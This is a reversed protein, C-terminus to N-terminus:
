RRRIANRFVGLEQSSFPRLALLPALYLTLLLVGVAVYLTFAGGSSAWGQAAPWLLWGATGTAIGAVTPKWLLSMLPVMGLEKGVWFLFPGLLVLESAVTAIAAGNIGIRPVLLLNATVNFLVTAAFAATLLRQKDLAILVYQTLGNVFSMPLFFILIQLVMAGEPLYREGAVIFILLPAFWVTLVVIPVSLILLLKLAFSYEFALRPRDTQAHRSMRPFLALTVAPTILLVFNLFSYAANYRELELGTPDNAKIVFVDARFFLGVLLANLMLPWGARLLAMGHVLQPDRTTLLSNNAAGSRQPAKNSGPYLEPFDRRLVRWFILATFCSTLTAALALGVIGWGLLLASIGLAVNLLATGVGIAAPLSIREQSYLLATVSGSLAGPLLSLGLILTAWTGDVSLNGTALYAAAILAVPLLLSISIFLRLRLTQRFLAATHAEKGESRAAERTLLTGLGWESVTSAYLLVIGPLIYNGLPGNGALRYQVIVYAFMLGKTVIQAIFPSLTNLAVRRAASGAEIQPPAEHTPRQTSAM